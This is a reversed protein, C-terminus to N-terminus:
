DEIEKYQFSLQVISDLDQGLSEMDEDDEDFHWNVKVKCDSNNKYHEIKKLLLLLCETSHTNLYDLHVLFNIESPSTNIFNKIWTELPEYFKVPHEPISRGIISLLSTEANFNIAPSNLKREIILPEM